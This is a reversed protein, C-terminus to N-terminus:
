YEVIYAPASSSAKRLESGTEHLELEPLKFTLKSIVLHLQCLRQYVELDEFNVIRKKM